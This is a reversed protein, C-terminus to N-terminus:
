LIAQRSETLPLPDDLPWADFYARAIGRLQNLALEGRYQKHRSAARCVKDGRFECAYTPELQAGTTTGIRSDHQPPNREARVRPARRVRYDTTLRAWGGPPFRRHNDPDAMETRGTSRCHPRNTGWDKRVHVPPAVVSSLTQKRSAARLYTSYYRNSRSYHKRGSWSKTTGLFLHDLYERV